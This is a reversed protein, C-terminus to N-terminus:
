SFEICKGHTPLVAPRRLIPRQWITQAEDVLSEPRPAAEQRLRSSVTAPWLGGNREAM